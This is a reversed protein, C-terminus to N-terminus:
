TRVRKFARAGKPPWPNPRAAIKGSRREEKPKACLERQVAMRDGRATDANETAAMTQNCAFRWLRVNEITHGGGRKRLYVHAITPADPEQGVGEPNMPMRDCNPCCCRGQQLLWLAEVSVFESPLGRTKTDSRQAAENKRLRARAKESMRPYRDLLQDAFEDFECGEAVETV